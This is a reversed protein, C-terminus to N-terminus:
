KIFGNGQKPQNERMLGRFQTGNRKKSEKNKSSDTTLIESNKEVM